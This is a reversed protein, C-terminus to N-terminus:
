KPEKKLRKAGPLVFGKRACRSTAVRLPNYDALSTSYRSLTCWQTGTYRDGMQRDTQLECSNTHSNVYQYDHITSYNIGMQKSHSDDAIPRDTYRSAAPQVTRPEFRETATAARDLAYTQPRKCTPITLEFGVPPMSIQKTNAFRKQRPFANLIVDQDTHAHAHAHTRAHTRTGPLTPKHMRMLAHLRAWGATVRIRWITVDNTAETQVVNKSM